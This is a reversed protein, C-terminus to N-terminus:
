LRCSEFDTPTPISVLDAGQYTDQKNMTPRLNLSKNQLYDGLEVDQIPSQKHNLMVVKEPVIDLAVVEHRQYFPVARSLGVYCTREIAINM